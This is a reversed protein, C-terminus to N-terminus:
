PKCFCSGDRTFDCIGRRDSEFDVVSFRQLRGTAASTGSSSAVSEHVAVMHDAGAADFSLGAASARADHEHENWMSDHNCAM